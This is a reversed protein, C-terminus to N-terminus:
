MIRNNCIHKSISYTRFTLSVKMHPLQQVRIIEGIVIGFSAWYQRGPAWKLKTNLDDSFWEKILHYEVRRWRGKLGAGAVGQGRLAVWQIVDESTM